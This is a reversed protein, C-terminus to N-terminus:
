VFYNLIGWATLISFESVEMKKIFDYVRRMQAKVTNISINRTEAIEKYSLGGLVFDLFINRRSEPISQIIKNVRELKVDHRNHNEFATNSRLRVAENFVQREKEKKQLQKLSLKRVASIGYSKFNERIMLTERKKWVSEFFSQVIDEAITRDKVIAFSVLLLHVYNEKYM